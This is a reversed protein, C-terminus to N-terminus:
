WSGSRLLGMISIFIESILEADQSTLFPLNELDERSAMNINIPNAELDCLRDYYAEWLSNDFEEYESIQLLYQEWERTQEQALCTQTNFITIILAALVVCLKVIHKNTANM